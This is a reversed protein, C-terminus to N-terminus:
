TWIKTNSHKPLKKKKENQTILPTPYSVYLKLFQPQASLCPKFISM